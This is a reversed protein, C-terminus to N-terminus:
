ASLKADEASFVEQPTHKKLRYFLTTPDVHYFRAWGHLSLTRGNYTIMRTQRTNNAQELPTAWRCNEPYYGKDNDIRDISLGPKYGHELAWTRFAVFDKEWEDCISIGRAGWRAYNKNQKNYCRTKMNSWIRYLRTRTEGHVISALGQKRAAEIHLCGCSRCLGQRLSSTSTQTEKGCSCLCRWLTIGPKKNPIRSIVTLRGFVQGSLDIFKGM